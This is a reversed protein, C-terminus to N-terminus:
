IRCSRLFQEPVVVETTESALLSSRPLDINVSRGLFDILISVRDARGSVKTVRGTSGKFCGTLIEVIEGEELGVGQGGAASVERMTAQLDAIILDSVSPVKNGFRVVGTVGQASLIRRGSQGWQFRAFFYGPFLAEVFLKRGSRTKRWVAIRPAFVETECQQEVFAAAIHERKTKSRLCYWAFKDSLGTM